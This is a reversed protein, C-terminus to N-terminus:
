EYPRDGLKRANHGMFFWPIYKEIRNYMIIQKETMYELEVFADVADKEFCGIQAFTRGVQTFPTM